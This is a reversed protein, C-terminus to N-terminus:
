VNDGMISDSILQYIEKVRKKKINDIHKQIIETDKRKAPGTQVESPKNQEIKM